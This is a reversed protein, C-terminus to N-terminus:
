RPVTMTGTLVGEVRIEAEEEEKTLSPDFCGVDGGTLKTPM